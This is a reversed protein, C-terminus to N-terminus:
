PPIKERYLAAASVSNNYAFEVHPLQDDQNNQLTNVVIALMQAMTHNVREVGGNGDPHYISTPIKRVGLFQYVPHSLKSCFQLGHESLIGRPCGWLPIYRNILINATGEATFEAATVAFMDARRSFRDTLFLIYTNGRPAVPLLGFYDASAAIGFGEPLPMTFTSRVTQRSTKGARCKLCNRIWWRTCINM